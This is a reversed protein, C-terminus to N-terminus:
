AYGASWPPEHALAFPPPLNPQQPCLVQEHLTVANGLKSQVIGEYNLVNGSDIGAIGNALVITQKHFPLTTDM